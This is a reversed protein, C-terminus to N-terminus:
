KEAEESLLEKSEEKKGKEFKYRQEEKSEEKL